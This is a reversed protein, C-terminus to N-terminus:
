ALTGDDKEPAAAGQKWGRVTVTIKADANVADAAASTV